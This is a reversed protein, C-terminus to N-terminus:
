ESIDATTAAVVPDDDSYGMCRTLFNRAAERPASTGALAFLNLPAPDRDPGTSPQVYNPSLLEVGLSRFFAIRGERRRRDEADIAMDVREVELMLTRGEIRDVVDAFLGRAIGRRRFVPDVAIYRLYALDCDDHISFWTFGALRGDELAVTLSRRGTVLVPYPISPEFHSAISGLPERENRDPFSEVYLEFTAWALPDLLSEVACLDM